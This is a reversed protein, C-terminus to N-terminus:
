WRSSRAMSRLFFLDIIQGVFLLGFTFLWLLGTGWRGTYFRHIGFFGFFMALWCLATIGGSVSKPQEYGPFTREHPEPRGSPKGRGGIRRYADDYSM